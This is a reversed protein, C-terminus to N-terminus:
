SHGAGAGDEFVLPLAGVVAAITTTLIPRLLLKSSEIIAEQVKLGKKRLQNAFEVIMISNKTILGILIILRINSYM